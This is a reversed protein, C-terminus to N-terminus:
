RSPHGAAVPRKNQSATSICLQELRAGVGVYLSCFKCGYVLDSTQLVRDLERQRAGNIAAMLLERSSVKIKVQLGSSLSTVLDGEEIYLCCPEGLSRHLSTRYFFELLDFNKGIGESELISKMGKAVRDFLNSRWDLCSTVEFRDREKQYLMVLAKIAAESLNTQNELIEVLKDFRSIDNFEGIRVLGVLEVIVAESLDTQQQLAIFAYRNARWQDLRRGNECGIIVEVAAESLDRRNGLAMAASEFLLSDTSSNQFRTLLANIATEPLHAQHGLIRAVACQIGSYYSYDDRENANLLRVLATVTTESLNRQRALASVVCYQVRDNRPECEYDILRVFASLTSESLVTQNGLAKTAAIRASVGVFEDEILRALAAITTESLNQRRLARAATMRGAESNYKDEILRVLARVTSESLVTQNGLAKTAAIRASVGVFEDEILRALAAITTESLNQRGLARAAAMRGAKSNCEDEILRVLAAITTESLNQQRLVHAATMRGAKSNCEDEILRVLAAITTESLAKKCYPYYTEDAQKVLVKIVTESVHSQNLLAEAITAQVKKDNCENEIFRDLSAITATSLNRQCELAEAAQHRFPNNTKILGVCMTIAAESLNRPYHLAETAIREAYLKTHEAAFLGVVAKVAPDSSNLHKGLAETEAANLRGYLDRNYENGLGAIAAEALKPQGSLADAAATAISDDDHRSTPSAPEQVSAGPSEPQERQTELWNSRVVANDKIMEVFATVVAESLHRHPQALSWIIHEKQDNSSSELARLLAGDPFESEAAMSAFRNTLDYEILLWQSLRSELGSRLESEWTNAESLCHMVLRQHTPGLLDRPEQEIAKFFDPVKDPPLLGVTFRWVIDYRGSYKEQRLFADPRIKSPKRTKFDQYELEDRAEWQRAFYKAAFFEQFTLHLFHYSRQRMSASPDSSRLFSLKGLLEDFVDGERSAKVLKRIDGRHESQFEVVNNYMGSFALCELIKTEAEMKEEIEADFAEHASSETLKGFRLTDKRWLRQVIAKYVATMTEPITNIRFSEDWTLCLADLQIPIRVLSQILQHKQLFSWIEEAKKPDQVVKEVYTHVQDPYFGITELELSPKELNNPLRAHPRTTIIVNPSSLLATLLSYAEHNSDLLDAVEDLGDLIFLSDCPNTNVAAWLTNALTEGDAQDKFYIHLFVEGLNYRTYVRRKLERLPVWLVRAFMNGWMKEHIFGHVIKKCLTTKGVGARGRILIRRAQETHNYSNQRSSFLTPLEVSDGQDPTEINLRSSLSFPSTQSATGEFRDGSSQKIIALNIYCQDMDLVEGSLRVIDLNGKAYHKLIGADARQLPTGERIRQLCQEIRCVVREYDRDGPGRFKNMQVHTRDLSLPHQDCQLTGSERNVLQQKRSSSPVFSTFPIKRCLDTYGNEYFTSVECPGNNIFTTFNRILEDLNSGSKVFDLRKTLRRGRFKAWAKLSPEAWRAVDQFATGGFPTALFIIARTDMKIPNFRDTAMDLAKILIIGGLCSAIFLIPRTERHCSMISDLLLRALEEFTHEAFELSEFLEAPWDCMFIRSHGVRSPLMYGDALWNVGSEHPDNPNNKWKWTDSSNTDLGHIAFIDVSDTESGDQGPPHVPTITVSPRQHSSRTPNNQAPAQDLSWHGRPPQADNRSKM